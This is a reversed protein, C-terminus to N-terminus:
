GIPNTITQFQGIVCNQQTTHATPVVMWILGYIKTPYDSPTVNLATPRDM